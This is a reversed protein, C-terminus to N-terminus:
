NTPTDRRLAARPANERFHAPRTAGRGWIARTFEGPGAFPREHQRAGITVATVATYAAVVVTTAVVTVAAVTTAAAVVTVATV